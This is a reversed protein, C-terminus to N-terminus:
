QHVGNWLFFIHQTMPTELSTHGHTYLLASTRQNDRSLINKIPNSSLLELPLSETGDSNIATIVVKKAEAGPLNDFSFHTTDQVIGKVVHSGDKYVATIRYSTSNPSHWTIHVVHEKGYRADLCDPTKPRLLCESRILHDARDTVLEFTPASNKIYAGKYWWGGVYQQLAVCQQDRVTVATGAPYYDQDFHEEPAPMGTGAPTFLYRNKVVTRTLKAGLGFLKEEGRFNPNAQRETLDKQDTCRYAAAIYEPRIGGPGCV